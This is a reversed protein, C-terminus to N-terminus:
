IIFTDYVGLITLMVIIIVISIDLWKPIPKYKLIIGRALLWSFSSLVLVLMQGDSM